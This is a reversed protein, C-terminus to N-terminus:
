GSRTVIVTWSLPKLTTTLTSEKVAVDGKDRPAVEDPADKSNIAKIDSHHLEQAFAISRDGFGRLEVEIKADQKARNLLLTTVEGSQPDHLVTALVNAVRPHTATSFADTEIQARLVNGRGFRSAQAFPHFITQRWAAGGTETM